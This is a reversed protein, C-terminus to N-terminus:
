AISILYWLLCVFLLFALLFGVLRDITYPLNDNGLLNGSTPNRRHTGEPYSTHVRGRWRIRNAAGGDGANPWGRVEAQCSVLDREPSVDSTGSTDGPTVAELYIEVASRVVWPPM